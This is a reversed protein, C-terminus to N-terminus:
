KEIEVHNLAAQAITGLTRELFHIQTRDACYSQIIQITSESVRGGSKQLENFAAGLILPAEKDNEMSDADKIVESLLEIVGEGGIMVAAQPVIWKFSAKPRRVHAKLLPMCKRIQLRGITRIAHGQVHGLDYDQDYDRERKLTWSLGHVLTETVGIDEGLQRLAWCADGATVWDEDLPEGKPKSLVRLCEIAKNKYSTNEFGRNGIHELVHWLLGKTECDQSCGEAELIDLLLRDFEVKEKARRKKANIRSDQSYDHLDPLLAHFSNSFKDFIAIAELAARRAYGQREVSNRAIKYLAGRCGIGAESLARATIVRAPMGCGKCWKIIFQLMGLQADDSFEYQSIARCYNFPDHIKVAKILKKTDIERNSGLGVIYQLCAALRQNNLERVIADIGQQTELIWEAALFEQYWPHFFEYGVGKDRIIGLRGSLLAPLDSPCSDALVKGARDIDQRTFSGCTGGAMTRYALCRLVRTLDDASTEETLSPYSVDNKRHKENVIYNLVRSCLHTKNLNGFIKVWESLNRSGPGRRNDDDRLLLLMISLSLPNSAMKHIQPMAIIRKLFWEVTDRRRIRVRVFQPLRRLTIPLMEYHDCQPLLDSGEPRSTIVFSADEISDLYAALERRAADNRMQDFGDFLFLPRFRRPQRLTNLPICHLRKLHFDIYKEIYQSLDRQDIHQIGSPAYGGLPVMLPLTKISGKKLLHLALWRLATTKGSGPEGVIASGKVDSLECAPFGNDEEGGRFRLFPEICHDEYQKQELLDRVLNDKIDNRIADVYRKLWDECGASVSAKNLVVRLDAETKAPTDSENCKPTARQLLNNPHLASAHISQMLKDFGNPEFLNIYALRDLTRTGDCEILPIECESLRVPILYIGGAAYERYASIADLIEPYIGSTIRDTTEHSFCVVVAYADKMAKRIELKWDHGGLIDQDWWVSEGEAILDDRLKSVEDRNDRCYSLFIHKKAM